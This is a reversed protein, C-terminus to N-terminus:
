GSAADRAKRRETALVDRWERRRRSGRRYGVAALVILAVLVALEPASRLGHGARAVVLSIAALALSLACVSFWLLMADYAPPVTPEAPRGRGAADTPM